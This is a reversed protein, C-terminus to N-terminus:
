PREIRPAALRSVARGPGWCWVGGDNAAAGCATWAPTYEGSLGGNVGEALELDTFALGTNAPDPTFQALAADEGAGYGWCYANGFETLGCTAGASTRVSAFRLGGAVAVPALQDPAGQGAPPPGNGLAGYRNEGWCYAAGDMTVGCAHRFGASVQRFRLGGAVAVPAFSGGAAGRGLQGYDNRGWCYAAGDVAVGCTFHDGASLSTFQVGGAVAVPVASYQSAAGTGLEGDNNSGWCRATRDEGVACTHRVHATLSSFRTGGAVAVPRASGDLSGTGLVGSSGAGWCYATGDVALGCSHGGGAALAAFHLGGSVLRPESSPALDGTGLQGASNEGWCLAQAAANIGCFHGMGGALGQNAQAPAAPVAFVEVRVSRSEGGAVAVLDAAGPGTMTVTGAADVAAVGPDSSYFTVASAPLEARVSNYARLTATEGVYFRHNPTLSVSDVRNEVLVWLTDSSTGWHAIVRTAGMGRAFLVTSSQRIDPRTVTAVAPNESTWIVELEMQYGNIGSGGIVVPNLVLYEGPADFRVTDRGIEIRGERFPLEYTTTLGAATATLRNPGAGLRWRGGAEGLSDTVTGAPSVSGGGEAVAWHVAVGPVANAARDEVKAKVFALEGVTGRQPVSTVGVRVPAGPLVTATATATASTGQVRAVVLQELYQRTAVTGLTWATRARGNADTVSTTPSVSGLAGPLAPATSSATWTITAGPVPRGDESVFTVELSDRLTAGITDAQGAGGTVTLGPPPLITATFTASPGGAVSATATTPGPNPGLLWSSRARGNADTVSTPPILTGGGGTVTWQVTVGPVPAGSADRLVVELSDALVRNRSGTQADGATKVLGTGPPLPTAATANFVVTGAGAVTATVAQAGPTAGLTWTAQARGAADTISSVPTVTGNGPAASWAVAVGAVPRGNQQVEVVLPQALTAGPAAAQGTGSVRTLTSGTGLQATATFVTTTSVSAAAQLRQEGQQTGLTWHARAVGQANTVSTAPSVSGGGAAVTWAVTHGAVPNGYADRVVVATSDGLPLGPLGTTAPASVALLTAPPGATGVARFVASLPPTGAPADALVAEVRQTDGAVTGLTWRERAEGQADTRTAGGALTGGGATVRFTVLQDAMPRGQEDTLRVVLAAPLQAAVPGQQLDGAAAALAGPRSEGGGGDTPSQCSALLAAALLACFALPSRRIREIMMM